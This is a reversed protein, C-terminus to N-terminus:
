TRRPIKAHADRGAPVLGLADLVERIELLDCGVMAQCVTLAARRREDDNVPRVVLADISPVVDFNDPM